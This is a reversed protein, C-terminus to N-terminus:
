LHNESFSIHHGSQFVPHHLPTYTDDTRNDFLVRYENDCSILMQRVSIQAAKRASHASFNPLAFPFPSLERSIASSEEDEDEDGTGSILDCTAVPSL